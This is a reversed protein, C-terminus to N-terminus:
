KLGLSILLREDKLRRENFVRLHQLELIDGDSLHTAQQLRKLVADERERLIWKGQFREGCSAPLNREVFGGGEEKESHLGLWQMRRLENMDWVNKYKKATAVGQLAQKGGPLLGTFARGLTGYLFLAPPSVLAFGLILM